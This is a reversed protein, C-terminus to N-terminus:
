TNIDAADPSPLVVGKASLITVPGVPESVALPVCNINEAGDVFTAGVRVPGVVM